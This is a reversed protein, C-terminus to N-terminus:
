GAKSPRLFHNVPDAIQHPTVVGICIDVSRIILNQRFCIKQNIQQFTIRGNLCLFVSVVVNKLSFGASPKAPQKVGDYLLLCRNKEVIFFPQNKLRKKYQKKDGPVTCCSEEPLWRGM